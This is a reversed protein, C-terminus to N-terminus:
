GRTDKVDEVFSSYLDDMEVPKFMGVRFKFKHRKKTSQDGTDGKTIGLRNLIAEVVHLISLRM